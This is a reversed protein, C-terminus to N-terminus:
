FLQKPGKPRTPDLIVQDGEKLGEIVELLYPTAREAQVPRREIHDGRMVYCVSSGGEYVMALAPIVLADRSQATLIEVEATMGPLLGRPVSHLQIKGLYNKVENGTESKQDVLALLSIATVHGELPQDPLAEIHLQAPMGVAVRMVVSEHLLVGVEMQSLDLLYFMKQKQRVPADLMIQPPKGPDNSYLVVGDHPARITCRDVQLQYFVLREEEHQRRMTQYNYAARAAEIQSELVRQQKPVTFREFLDLVAEFQSLSLSDRRLVSEDSAVQATSYYGKDKMHLCWSLHDTARKLESQALAMQGKYGQEMQLRLGQQFETLSLEAIQLTLEAARHDAQAQAVKIKQQDVLDQYDSSDLECLVDGKKVNSGEPILTLIVSAAARSAANSVGGAGLKELECKIVIDSSCQVVGFSKVTVNLDSRRVTAYAPPENSWQAALWPRVQAASVVGVAVIM